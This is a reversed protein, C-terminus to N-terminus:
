FFDIESQERSEVHKNEIWTSNENNYTTNKLSRSDDECFSSSVIFRKDLGMKKRFYRHRLENGTLIVVKKRKNMM